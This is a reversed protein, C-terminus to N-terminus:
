SHKDSIIEPDPWGCVVLVARARGSFAPQTASFVRTAHISARKLSGMSRYATTNAPPYEFLCLVDGGSVVDLGNDGGM